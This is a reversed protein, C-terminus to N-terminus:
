KLCFNQPEPLVIPSVGQPLRQTSETANKPVLNSTKATGKKQALERWILAHFEAIVCLPCFLHTEKYINIYKKENSHASDYTEHCRLIPM